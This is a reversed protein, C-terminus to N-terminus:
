RGLISDLTNKKVIIRAPIYGAIVTAFLLLFARNLTAPVEAVLIGDSFPFSIPHAAIFPVLFGYLFLMGIGIGLVAYFISQFVYSIEIAGSSIGIGKLIGIFKKRTIANVFIVIFITISAVVLGISGVIDGLLAFTDEMDKVFKPMADAFTQVKATKGVGSNILANKVMVPDVKPKTIVSIENVNYDTRGILNRLTTDLMMVRMDIEDVKTKVIGKVTFEKTNGKVTLRIKDGVDVNELTQFAASEIELYKKLLYAGIIVSDTDDKTLYSGEIVKSSLHSVQDEQEPDIGAIIANAENAKDTYNVRDKYTGEIKGGYTYRAAYNEIWPLNKIIGIINPTNEIYDKKLPTSIFIDGIYIEKQVDVVGQILGVLVGRVV